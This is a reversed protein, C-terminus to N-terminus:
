NLKMGLEQNGYAPSYKPSEQETAALRVKDKSGSENMLPGIHGIYGCVSIVYLASSYEALTNNTCYMDVLLITPQIRITLQQKDILIAPFQM